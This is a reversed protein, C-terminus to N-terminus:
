KSLKVIEMTVQKITISYWLRKGESQKTLNMDESKEPM